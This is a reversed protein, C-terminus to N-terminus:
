QAAEGGVPPPTIPTEVWDMWPHVPESSSDWDPMLHELSLSRPNKDLKQIVFDGLMM